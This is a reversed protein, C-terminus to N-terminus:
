VTTESYGWKQVGGDLRVACSMHFHRLERWLLVESQTARCPPVPPVSTGGAQASPIAATRLDQCWTPNRQDVNLVSWLPVVIGNVVNVDQDDQRRLEWTQSRVPIILYLAPANKEWSALAGLIDWCPRSDLLYLTSRVRFTMTTDIEMIILWIQRKGQTWVPKAPAHSIKAAGIELYQYSPKSSGRNTCCLM